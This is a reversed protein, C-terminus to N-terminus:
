DRAKAASRRAEETLGQFVPTMNMFGKQTEAERGSMVNKIDGAERRIKTPSSESMSYNKSGEGKNGYAGARSLGDKGKLM